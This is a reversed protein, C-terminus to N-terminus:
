FDEGVDNYDNTHPLIVRRGPATAPTFGAGFADCIKWATLSVQNNNLNLGLHAGSVLNNAHFDADGIDFYKNFWIAIIGLIQGLCSTMYPM